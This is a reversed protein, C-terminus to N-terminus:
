KYENVVDDRNIVEGMHWYKKDGINLYKFETNYFNKTYGQEKIIEAFEDFSNKDENLLNDRVIYEHPATKAYTKAFIWKTKEIFSKVDETSM